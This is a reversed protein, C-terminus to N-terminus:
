NFEAFADDGLPEGGFENPGTGFDDGAMPQAELDGDLPQEADDLVSEESRQRPSPSMKAAVPIAIMVALMLVVWPIFFLM